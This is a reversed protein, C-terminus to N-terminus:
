QKNDLKLYAISSAVISIAMISHSILKGSLSFVAPNVFEDLLFSAMFFITSLGIAVLFGYSMAQYRLYRTREDNLQKCLEPNQKLLKNSKLLIYSFWVWGLAGILTLLSFFLSVNQSM